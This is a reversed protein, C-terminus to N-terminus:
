HEIYSSWLRLVPSGSATRSGCNSFCQKLRNCQFILHDVTQTGQKCPCEPSGIIKLRHLYSRINGHGTMITTLKPSLTLNVALRREVSPFFEKTIAGKTTEERQRLWKRTSEKRTDKKIASRPIRSYTVYYNQTAEKMLRDAIENEYIGAHAKVSQVSTLSLQIYTIYLGRKSRVFFPLAVRFEGGPRQLLLV